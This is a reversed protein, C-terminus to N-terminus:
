SVYPKTRARAHQESCFKTALAKPIALGSRCIALLTALVRGQKRRRVLRRVPCLGQYGRTLVPELPRALDLASSSAARITKLPLNIMVLERSLHVVTGKRSTAHCLEANLAM